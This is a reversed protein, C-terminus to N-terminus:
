SLELVSPPFVGEHNKMCCLRKAYDVVESQSIIILDLNGMILGRIQDLEIYGNGVWHSLSMNALSNDRIGVQIRSKVHIQGTASNEIFAKLFITSTAKSIQELSAGIKLRNGIYVPQLFRTNMSQLLANEGPMHM